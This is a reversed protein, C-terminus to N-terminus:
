RRRSRPRWGTWSRRARGGGADLANADPLQFVGIGVADRGDFRLNLSYDEAGLEARASTACCCWRDGNPAASSCWTARVRAPRDPAGRRTVSIQFTQGTPAPPQGVQGAAIIANQERLAAM